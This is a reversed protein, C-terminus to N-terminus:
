SLMRNAIAHGESALWAEVEGAHQIPVTIADRRLTWMWPSHV